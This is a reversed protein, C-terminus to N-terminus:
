LPESAFRGGIIYTAITRAYTSVRSRSGSSAGYYWNGGALLANSSGYVDACWQFVVGCTDEAGDNSISRRSTADLHGGTTVPDAAGLISVGEQVGLAVQTFEYDWLLREGVAAADAAHDWYARTDTITGGNVSTSNVGTGSQLYIYVWKQIRQSFYKGTQIGNKARHKLDWVTTPLIDGQTFDTLTHGAITGVAVCLCHFGGIKRSTDTTYGTPTTSNASVLLALTGSNDCAYVYYDNGARAADNLATGTDWSGNTNLELPTDSAVTFIKENVNIVTGAYVTITDAASRAPRTAREFHTPFLTGFNSIAAHPIGNDDLNTMSTILTDIGGHIRGFGQLQTIESQEITLITGATASGDDQISIMCIPFKGAPITPATVSGLTANATGETMEITGSSNITFLVKNYYDATIATTEFAGATGLNVDGSGAYEIKTTGFYVVGAYIAITLDPTSQAESYFGAATQIHEKVDRILNPVTNKLADDAPTTLAWTKAAM